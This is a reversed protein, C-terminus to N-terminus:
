SLILKFFFSYVFCYLCVFDFFEHAAANIALYFDEGITLGEANVAEQLLDLGQTPVDIAPCLAGSENVFKAAPQKFLIYKFFMIEVIFPVQISQNNPYTQHFFINLFIFQFSFYWDDTPNLGADKAQQTSM